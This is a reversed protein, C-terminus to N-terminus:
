WSFKRFLYKDGIHKNDKGFLLRPLGFTHWWVLFHEYPLACVRIPM